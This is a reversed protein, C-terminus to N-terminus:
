KFAQVFETISMENCPRLAKSLRYLDRCVIMMIALCYVTALTVAVSLWAPLGQTLENSLSHVWLLTFAGLLLPSVAAFQFFRRALSRKVDFFEAERHGLTGDKSESAAFQLGLSVLAALLAALSILLSM